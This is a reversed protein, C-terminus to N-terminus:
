VHRDPDMNGHLVRRILVTEDTFTYFVLHKGVLLSRYGVRLTDRNKGSEPDSGCMRMAADLDDLYRDARTEGFMRFSWLWIGRLDAEAQHSIVLRRM